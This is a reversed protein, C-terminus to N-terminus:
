IEVNEGPLQQAMEDRKQVRKAHKEVGITYRIKEAAKQWNIDSGPYEYGLFGDLADAFDLVPSSWEAIVQGITITAPRSGTKPHSGEGVTFEVVVWCVVPLKHYDVSKKNTVEAYVAYWGPQAATIQLINGYAM